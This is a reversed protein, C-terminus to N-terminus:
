AEDEWPTLEANVHNVAEEVLAERASRDTDCAAHVALLINAIADVADTMTDNRGVDPSGVAIAAAGYVARDLAPLQEPTDGFLRQAIWEGFEALDASVNYARRVDTERLVAM